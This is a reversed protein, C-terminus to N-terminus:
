HMAGEESWLPQRKWDKTFGMATVDVNPHSSILQKLQLKFDNGPHIANQLYALCCLQAYLKNNPVSLTDIWDGNLSQPLQPQIPYIRNWTRSHHALNNRLAVISRCWSELYKHQPLNFERAILKKTSTDSLNCLIRSLTGFSVVELTKWAPPVIPNNYRDFHAQIFDEKSRYVEQQIRITCDSYIKKDSFLGRDIFWFAGYKLSFHHILKSRLAVEFSQIATFILARLKKDFYYLNIANEFHSNPKFTHNDKDQEMPRLYNALRFYSIIKLQELAQGNDGILLNRQELMAIIQPYDLPQKTYDMIHTYFAFTGGQYANILPTTSVTPAFIVIKKPCVNM